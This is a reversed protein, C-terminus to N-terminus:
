SKFFIKMFNSFYFFEKGYQFKVRYAGGQYLFKRLVGKEFFFFLFIFRNKQALDM